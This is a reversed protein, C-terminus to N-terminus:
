YGAMAIIKLIYGKFKELNNILTEGCLRNKWHSEFIIMDVISFASSIYPFYHLIFCKYIYM